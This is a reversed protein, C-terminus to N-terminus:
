VHQDSEFPSDEAVLTEESLRTNSEIKHMMGNLKKGRYGHTLEGCNITYKTLICVTINTALITIKAAIRPHKEPESM